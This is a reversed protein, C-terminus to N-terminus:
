GEAGALYALHGKISALTSAVYTAYATFAFANLEAHAQGLFLLVGIPFVSGMLHSQVWNGVFTPAFSREKFAAAVGAVLDAVALILVGILAAVTQDSLQITSM